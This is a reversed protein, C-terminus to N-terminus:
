LSTKIKILDIEGQVDNLEEVSLYAKLRDIRSNTATIYALIMQVTSNNDVAPAPISAGVLGGSAFGPVGIASFVSSGGLLQQQRENLVVEGRKILALINDGQATAKTNPTATVKEGSVKVVNRDGLILGGTAASQAAIVAIQAAGLIGALAAAAINTGPFPPQGLAKVVNLATTIVAQTISFIKAAKAAEKEAKEREKELAAINQKEDELRRELQIKNTGTAKKIKNELDTIEAQKATIRNDIEAKQKETIAENFTAAIETFTALNNLTDAADALELEKRKAAEEKITETRSKELEALKLYYEEVTNTLYQYEEISVQAADGNDIKRLREEISLINDVIASKANDFSEKDYQATFEIVGAKDAGNLNKALETKLKVDNQKQLDEVQDLKKKFLDLSQKLDSENFDKNIKAINTNSQKQLQEFLKAYKEELKLKENLQKEQFTIQEVTGAGFLEVSKDISKQVEDNYTAQEEKLSAVKSEFSEKEKIIEQQRRDEISALMLNTEEKQIKLLISNRKESLKQEEAVLLTNYKTAIDIFAQRNNSDLQLKAKHNLEEYQSLTDDSLKKFSLYVASSAGYEKLVKKNQENTNSNFTELQKQLTIKKENYKVEEEKIEKDRATQILAINSKLIDNELSAILNKKENLWRAIEDRLDTHKQKTADVEKKSEKITNDVIEATGKSAENIQGQLDNSQKILENYSLIYLELDKELQEKTVIRTKLFGQTRDVILGRSNTYEKPNALINSVDDIKQKELAAAGLLTKNRAEKVSLDIRTDLLKNGKSLLENYTSENANAFDINKTLEPYLSSLRKILETKVTIPTSADKITNILFGLQDKQEVIKETNTKTYGTYTGLTDILENFGSIAGKLFDTIGSGVISNKIKNWARETLAGLTENKTQFESLISSSEGLSKNAEKVKTDLLVISNSLKNFVEKEGEGNIKLTQLTDGLDVNSTNFEKVKVIVQNFAQYLDTKVLQTFEKAPIGLQKAFAEPNTVLENIIRNVGGAGREANTGLEQLAASIGLIEGAKLGFAGAGGAIRTTFDAIVDATAAGTAGLVNLANGLRTFDNAVDGTKFDTLVNRLKGIVTAVEEASDGLEGKLAVALRDVAEITREDVQIGLQGLVEGIKLLEVIGTRTDIGKLKDTLNEIEQATKGSTKQVDAQVEDIVVAVEYFEKLAAAAVQFLIFAGAIVKGTATASRGINTFGDAVQASVNSLGQLQPITNAFVEGANTILANVTTPYNGVNRQFQGIEKDLEKLKKDVKDIEAVLKRGDVGDRQSEGLLKYQQRLEILTAELRRYSGEETGSAQFRRITNAQETQVDKLAAKTALLKQELKDYTTNDIDDRKLEEKIAKIAEQLGKARTEAIDTGTFQLEFFIKKAM